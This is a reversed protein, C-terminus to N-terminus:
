QLTICIKEVDPTFPLTTPSKNNLRLGLLADLFTIEFPTFFAQSHIEAQKGSSREHNASLKWEHMRFRLAVKIHLWRVPM